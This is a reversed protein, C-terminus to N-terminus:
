LFNFLNKLFLINSNLNCEALLIRITDSVFFFKVNMKMKILNKKEQWEGRAPFYVLSFRLKQNM